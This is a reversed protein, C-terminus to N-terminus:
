EGRAVLASFTKAIESADASDTLKKFVEELSAQSTTQKARVATSIGITGHDDTVILKARHDGPSYSHLIPIPQTATSDDGAEFWYTTDARMSANSQWYVGPEGPSMLERRPTGDAEHWVVWVRLRDAFDDM